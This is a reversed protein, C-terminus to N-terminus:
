QVGGQLQNKYCAKRFTWKLQVVEINDFIECKMSEPDVVVFFRSYEFHPEALANLDPGMSSIAIKMIELLVQKNLKKEVELDLM